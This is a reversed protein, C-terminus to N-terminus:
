HFTLEQKGQFSRVNATLIKLTQNPQISETTLYTKKIDYRSFHPVEFTISHSDDGKLNISFNHAKPYKLKFEEVVKDPPILKSTKKLKNPFFTIRAERNLENCFIGAVPDDILKPIEVSGDTLIIDKNFNIARALTPELIEIKISEDVSQLSLKSIM